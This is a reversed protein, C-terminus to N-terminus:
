HEFAGEELDEVFGVGWHDDVQVAVTGASDLGEVDESDQGILADIQHAIICRPTAKRLSLKNTQPIKLAKIQPQNHILQLHPPIGPNSHPPPAHARNRRKHHRGSILNRPKDQIARKTAQLRQSLLQSLTMTFYRSKNKRNSDLDNVSRDLFFSSEADIIQLNQRPHSFQFCRRKEHGCFLVCEYGDRM